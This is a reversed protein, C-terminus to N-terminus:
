PCTSSREFSFDTLVQPAFRQVALLVAGEVPSYFPKVLQGGLGNVAKLLVPLVFDAAHFLGGSYSVRLDTGSMGLRMAVSEVMLALEGAAQEYLLRCSRDGQGAAKLLLRQMAAVKSRSPIVEREMLDIFDYPNSLEYHEMIIDFLKDRVTRGDAQKSFLAMTQRGLDYCSGEDGFFTSWGGSRATEGDANKGFAISGTGAVINIGAALGLSGAWGVEVDNTVYIPVAALMGTMAAALRRDMARSEGYCPLGACIGTVQTLKIGAASLCDDIGSRITLLAVEVGYERYSCGIRGSAALCKGSADSLLFATKTGGGDIGLFVKM